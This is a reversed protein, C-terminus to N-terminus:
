FRPTIVGSMGAMLEPHSGTIAATIKISQSVPDVRAGVRVLQADYSKGTEDIRVAFAAGPKLQPQWASPAIFELQLPGSGIIELLENGQQVFQM